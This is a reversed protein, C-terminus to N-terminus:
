QKIVDNPMNATRLQMYEYQAMPTNLHFDKIDMTMYKTNPTSITSNILLKVTLLDATPTGANSPYHVRDGGMVLRTRNPEEIKEPRILCTILGYTVDKVRNQPVQNKKIFIITNTGTKRGPMGQSLCGIENGYLHQWKARTTQNTILHRYELLEGNVGMVSNAMNCLWKMPLKHQSMQKPMVTFTTGTPKPIKTYNLIGLDAPVIYNPKYIDVCSLMAEQM